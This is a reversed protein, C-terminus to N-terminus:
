NFYEDLFLSVVEIRLQEKKHGDNIQNEEHISYKLSYADNSLVYNSSAEKIEDIFQEIEELLPGAISFQNIIAVMFGIEEEELRNCPEAGNKQQEYMINIWDSDLSPTGISIYMCSDEGLLIKCDYGDYGLEHYKKVEEETVKYGYKHCVEKVLRECSKDGFFQGSLLGAVLFIFIFSLLYKVFRNKIIIM